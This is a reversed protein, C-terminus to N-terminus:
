PFNDYLADVDDGFKYISQGVSFLRPTYLFVNLTHTHTVM